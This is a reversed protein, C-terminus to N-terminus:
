LWAFSEASVTLPPLPPPHSLLLLELEPLLLLLEVVVVLVAFAIRRSYNWDLGGGGLDPPFFEPCSRRNGRRLDNKKM